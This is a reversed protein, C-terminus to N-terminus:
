TRKSNPWTARLEYVKAMTKGPQLKPQRANRRLRPLIRDGDGEIQPLGNRRAYPRLEEPHERLYSLLRRRKEKGRNGSTKEALNGPAIVEPACEAVREYAAIWTKKVASLSISFRLALEGDTECELAASLLRQASPAFGFRPVRPELLIGIWSGPHQAEIERTLGIVHPRSAITAPDQDEALRDQYRQSASDWLMGGTKMVWLVDEASEMQNSILEKWRYGLHIEIFANALLRIIDSRTELGPQTRGMWVVCNLGAGSNAERVQQETLIPSNGNLIRRTLEPGVWFPRSKLEEVFADNAFISVGVAALQTGAGGTEEFVFASKAPLELLRRMAAGLDRLREGYRERQAPRSAILKVCADIDGATMPRYRLGM